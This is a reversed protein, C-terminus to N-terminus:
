GVFFRRRPTPTAGEPAKQAQPRLVTGAAEAQAELQSWLEGLPNAQGQLASKPAAQLDITAIRHTFPAFLRAGCRALWLAALRDPMHATPNYDRMNQILTETQSESAYVGPSTERSPFIWAGVSTANAEASVGFSTHHKNAGTAQSRVLIQPHELKLLEVLWGQVGNTEVVVVGGYRAHAEAIKRKGDVVGWRGGDVHLLQIVLYQDQTHKGANHTALNDLVERSAEYRHQISDRFYEAPGCLGVVLGWEDGEDDSKVGAPDVGIVVFLGNPLASADLAPALTLGIGTRRCLDIWAEEFIVEGEAPPIARLHQNKRAPPYKDCVDQPWIKPYLTKGKADIAEMVYLDWGFKKALIHGTDHSRHANQIFLRPGNADVRDEIDMVWEAQQECLYRSLAITPDVMDDYVHKSARFGQFHAMDGIAQMSPQAQQSGAVRFQDQQWLVGPQLHPWVLRVRPNSEIQSRVYILHKQANPKTASGVLIRANEPDEGLTVLTDGYTILTSKGLKSAAVVVLRKSRLMAERLKAYGELVRGVDDRLSLVSSGRSDQPRLCFEIAKFWDGRAAEAMKAERDAAREAADIAKTKGSLIGM